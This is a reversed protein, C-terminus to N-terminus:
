AVDIHLMYKLPAMMFVSHMNIFSENLLLSALYFCYSTMIYFPLFVCKVIANTIQVNYCLLSFVTQRFTSCFNLAHCM